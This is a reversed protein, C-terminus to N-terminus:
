KKKRPTVVFITKGKNDKLKQRIDAATDKYSKAKIGLNNSYKIARKGGGQFKGIKKAGYSLREAGKGMKERVKAWDKMVSRGLKSRYPVMSLGRTISTGIKFKSEFLYSIAIM